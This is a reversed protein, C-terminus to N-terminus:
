GLYQRKGDVGYNAPVWKAGELKSEASAAASVVPPVNYIGAPTDVRLGGWTWRPSEPMSDTMVRRGMKKPENSDKPTVLWDPVDNWSQLERPETRAYSPASGSLGQGERQAPLYGGVTQAAMVSAPATAARALHQERLQQQQRRYFRERRQTYVDPTLDTIADVTQNVHDHRMRRGLYRAFYVCLVIILSLFVMVCAAVITWIWAKSLHKSQASSRRESAAAITAFM